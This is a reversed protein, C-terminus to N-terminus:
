MASELSLAFGHYSHFLMTEQYPPQQTTHLLPAPTEWISRAATWRQLHHTGLLEAEGPPVQM